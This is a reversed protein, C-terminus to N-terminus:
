SVGSPKTGEITRAKLSLSSPGQPVFSSQGFPGQDIMELEGLGPPMRRTNMRTFGQSFREAPDETRFAVLDAVRLRQGPALVVARGSMPPVDIGLM